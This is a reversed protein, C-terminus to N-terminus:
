NKAEIILHIRDTPGNNIVTHEKSVNTFYLSGAELQYSSGAIEFVVEEGTVIPIHLRYINESCFDFVDGDSHPPIIKKSPVKSLRVLGIETGFLAAIEELISAM